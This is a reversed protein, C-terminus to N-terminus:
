KKALVRKKPITKKTENLIENTDAEIDHLTRELAEDQQRIRQFNAQFMLTMTYLFLPVFIVSYIMTLIKGAMTHPIYDGFGVTATTIVTFYFAEFYTWGQAREFYHIFFTGVLWASLFIAATRILKRHHLHLM